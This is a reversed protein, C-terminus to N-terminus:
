GAALHLFREPNARITTRHLERAYGDYGGYARHLVSRNDWIVLMRPSWKHTYQFAPRTQWAYLERVLNGAEDAAMGEVGIIYGLCGFLSEKGTEPHRRIFPHPHVARADESYRIKMSRDSGREREGYAGEPAYAGAASHLANRGELRRRLADPMEALAKILNVFGTDGGVPPVVLSYLCTGVPPEAKFSWDSHWSEAFVPAQEDARRTLAVVPNGPEISEFYPDDGIGGLYDTFRVLDADSLDQDPFALVLHELWLSRIERIAPGDLPKSLDVGEVIAGCSQGTPLVNLM